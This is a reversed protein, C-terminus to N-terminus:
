VKTKAAAYPTTRPTARRTTKPASAVRAAVAAQLALRAWPRMADPSDMAEEPVTWYNLHQDKGRRTYVFIESGAAKFHAVTDDNTKFYLREFAILAIFIGDVYFGHGGFMRRTRVAGMPALLEQCHELLGSSM